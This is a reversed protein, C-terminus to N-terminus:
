HIPGCHRNRSVLTNDNDVVGCPLKQPLGEGMLSTFFIIIIIPFVIMCFLYIPMHAIHGIERAAIDLIRRPWAQLKKRVM